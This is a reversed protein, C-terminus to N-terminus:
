SAKTTETTATGRFDNVCGRASIVSGPRNIRATAALPVDDNCILRHQLLGLHQHLQILQEKSDPQESAKV